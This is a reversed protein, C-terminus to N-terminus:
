THFQDHRQDTRRHTLFGLEGFKNGCRVTTLADPYAKAILEPDFSKPLPMTFVASCGVAHWLLSQAVVSLM